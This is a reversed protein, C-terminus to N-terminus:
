RIELFVFMAPMKSLMALMLFCCVVGHDISPKENKAQRDGCATRHTLGDAKYCTQVRIPPRILSHLQRLGGQSRLLKLPRQM